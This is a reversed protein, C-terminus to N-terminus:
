DKDKTENNIDEYESFVDKQSPKSLLLNFDKDFLNSIKEMKETKPLFKYHYRIVTKIAMEKYWENWINKTKACNMRKDIEDKDLIEISKSGNTFVAVSYAMIIKKGRPFNLEHEIEPSSGKQIKFPENEYVVEAFMNIIKGSNIAAEIMGKYEPILVAQGKYPVLSAHGYFSNLTLGTSAIEVIASLISSPTCKLLAPNKQTALIAFNSERQFISKGKEGFLEIFKPETKAITDKFIQLNSM